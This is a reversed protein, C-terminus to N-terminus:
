VLVRVAQPEVRFEAPLSDIYEGDAMVALPEVSEIRVVEGRIESVEDMELHHGDFISALLPVVKWRPAGSIINVDLLGDDLVANPCIRMGGGIMQGNGVALSWARTARAVGDVEITFPRPSFSTLARVVGWVYVATGRLFKTENAVQNALSAIGVIAVGVFFRGNCRGVDIRREAARSLNRAAVLPDQDVGLVRVLDNGRGGPIPAVVAGSEYAGALARALVGDGAMVAVRQGPFCEALIETANEASTTFQLTVEWGEEELVRQVASARERARGGGAAPNVVLLLRSM